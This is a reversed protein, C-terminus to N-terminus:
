RGARRWARCPATPACRRRRSGGSGAALRRGAPRRAVQPLVARREPVRQPEGARSSRSRGNSTTWAQLGGSRSNRTASGSFSRPARKTKSWWSRTGSSNRERKPARRSRSSGPRRASSRTVNRQGVSTSRARVLAVPPTASSARARRRRLSTTTTRLAGSRSASRAPRARRGPASARCAAGADAVEAHHARLVADVVRQARQRGARRGRGRRSHVRREDACPSAKSSMTASARSSPSSSRTSNM